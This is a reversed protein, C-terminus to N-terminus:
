PHRDGRRRNEVIPYLRHGSESGNGVMTERL